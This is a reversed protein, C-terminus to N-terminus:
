LQSQPFSRCTTQKIPIDGIKKKKLENIFYDNLSPNMTIVTAISIEAMTIPDMNSSWM